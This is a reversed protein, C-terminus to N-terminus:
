HNEFDNYPTSLATAVYIELLAQRLPDTEEVFRIEMEAVQRKAAAFAPGFRADKVLSARSGKPSYSPKKMGTAERAIRFAFTATYHTASPVCHGRLRQRLRNTRGVYLPRGSVSFLYIARSPMQKPLSSYIVPSMSLLQQFKPELSEILANFRDNM